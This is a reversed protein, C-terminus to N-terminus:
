DKWILTEPHSFNFRISRKPNVLLELIGPEKTGMRTDMVLKRYPKFGCKEQVRASQVNFDYHGCTLFDLNCEDFLYDIVARVAEPMLGRGWYSKSLVYGIERGQYDSFETLAEEKGYKEVGLSGIVKNKEKLVIAFTKDHEIFKELIQLTEVKDAHHKWGAMEGVGAVSAYEYFDDLDTKAFPRLVLRETEIIKGNLRFDANMVTGQLLGM